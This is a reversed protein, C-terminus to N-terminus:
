SVAERGQPFEFHLLRQTTSAYTSIASGGAGFTDFDNAYGSLDVTSISFIRELVNIEAWWRVLDSM